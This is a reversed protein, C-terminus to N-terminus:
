IITKPKIPIWIEEESDPSGNKYKEGLIEFHPRNDLQYESIPLWESFITQFIGTSMGKQQFVAYLGGPLTFPEFNKPINEFSAVETAAWKEFKKEPKFDTFYCLDYNQLSYLDNDISNPVLKRIPMFSHWLEFTKNDTLSMVMKRGVLKKEGINEIRPKM